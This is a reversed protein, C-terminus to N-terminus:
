MWKEVVTDQETIRYNERESCLASGYFYEYATTNDDYDHRGILWICGNVLRM